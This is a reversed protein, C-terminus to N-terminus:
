SASANLNRREMCAPCLILMDGDTGDKKKLIKKQELSKAFEARCDYCCSTKVIASDRKLDDFFSTRM